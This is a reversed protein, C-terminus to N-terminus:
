VVIYAAAGASQTVQYTNGELAVTTANGNIYVTIETVGEQFTLTVTQKDGCHNDPDAVNQIMYAYRGSDNKLETVLACDRDVSIAVLEAFSANDVYEVHDLHADSYSCSGKYTASANYDYPLLTPALKQLEAMIKQMSYYVETKTTGDRNVFSYGDYFTEYASDDKTWYTFYTIGKVGFGALMNNLWYLDKEDLSRSDNMKMTQTVVRLDIGKEKCLESAVQLGSIYTEYINGSNLPYQDYQLYEAQMSDIFLELYNRYYTERETETLYYGSGLAPIGEGYNPGLNKTMPLLNYQVHVNPAALKIARYTQGYATAHKYNPEDRLMVGYFAPHNVYPALEEKVLAVLDDMTAYTKTATGTDADTAPDGAENEILSGYRDSLDYLWSDILVVKLGVQEALDLVRKADCTEWDETYDYTASMQPM